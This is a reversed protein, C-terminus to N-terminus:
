DSRYKRLKSKHETSEPSKESEKMLFTTWTAKHYTLKTCCPLKQNMAMGRDEM